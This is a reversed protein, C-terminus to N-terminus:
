RGGDLSDIETKGAMLHYKRIPLEGGPTKWTTPLPDSGGSSHRVIAGVVVKKGRVFDVLNLLDDGGRGEVWVEAQPAGGTSTVIKYDSIRPPLPILLRAGQGVGMLATGAWCLTMLDLTSILAIPPTEGTFKESLYLGTAVLAFVAVVLLLIPHTVGWAFGRLLGSITLAWLVIFLCVEVLLLTRLEPNAPAKPAAKGQALLLTQELTLPLPPLVPMTPESGNFPQGCHRCVADHPLSLEQCNPCIIQM